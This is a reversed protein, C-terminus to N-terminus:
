MIYWFISGILANWPVKITISAISYPPNALTSNNDHGGTKNNSNIGHMAISPKVTYTESESKVM